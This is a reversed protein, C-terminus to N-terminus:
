AHTIEMLKVNKELTDGEKVFIERISGTVPAVIENEMKMAELIMLGQGKEVTDGAAVEIKKVLGPISAKLLTETKEGVQVMGLKELLLDMDDKLEVTLASSNSTIRYHPHEDQVHILLSRNEFILSYCNDALKRCDPEVARGDIVPRSCLDEPNIEITYTKDGSQIQYSKMM